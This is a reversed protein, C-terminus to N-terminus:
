RYRCSGIMQGILYDIWLMKFCILRWILKSKLTCKLDDAFFKVTVNYQGLVDALENSYSVFLFPGIGSGQIVGSPVHLKLESSTFKGVRTCLTRNSLFNELWLLLCGDVDYSHLRLLLKKHPVTDFGKAVTVGSHNQLALTWDNFSKLLNTLTSLRKLFGHKSVINHKHFHEVLSNVIVREMIKSSICTLSIPRYNSVDAAYNNRV